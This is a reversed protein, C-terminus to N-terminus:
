GFMKEIMDAIRKAERTIEDQDKGEIMVRIKPETGSPRILVRGAGKFREELKAIEDAIVPSKLCADKKDNAVKANILVQPLLEMYANLESLKKGSRKLVSILQVASLLGDGTTAFDSFIIHGSNEGGISHKAELMRELVYRDGVKTTEINIGLKEGMLMFGLNSMVTVVMTNNKLVGRAKMDNGIISMIQDGDIITGNEDVALMRDGDGDFALGIDMKNARVYDALASMHTSGCKNNINIGDPEISMAYANVGFKRFLSPAALYTAGNACDLAIKLGDFNDVPITNIVHDVYDDMATLSESCSGIAGNLANPIDGLKNMFDEIEDEIEDSLKYGESSFFKIGNDYYPNHSATIMVGADCNYKKVLYAIAPTPIVGSRIINAGVSCMGAILASELMDKSLRTDMGVIVTSAKAGKSLVYAGAKGLSYALEPTLEANALGRVGDTGFLKGM